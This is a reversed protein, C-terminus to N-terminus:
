KNCFPEVQKNELTETDEKGAVIDLANGAMHEVTHETPESSVDCFKIGYAIVKKKM